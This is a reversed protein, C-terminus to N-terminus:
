SGGEITGMNEGRTIIVSPFHLFGNTERSVEVRKEFRRCFLSKNMWKWAFFKVDGLSARAFHM